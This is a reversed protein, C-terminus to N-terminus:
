RALGVSILVRHGVEYEGPDILAFWWGTMQDWVSVRLSWAAGIPVSMEVGPLLMEELDAGSRFDPDTDSVDDWALFGLGLSVGVRLGERPPALRIGVASAGYNRHLEDSGVPFGTRAASVLVSYSLTRRPAFTLAALLGPGVETGDPHETDLLLLPGVSWELAQAGTASPSLGLVLSVFMAVGVPGNAFTGLGAVPFGPNRSVDIEELV